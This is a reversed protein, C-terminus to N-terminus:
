PLSGFAFSAGIGLSIGLEPHYVFASELVIRRYHWGVGFSPQFPPGSVGARVIFGKWFAYSVGVRGVFPSRLEKDIQIYLMLSRFPQYSSGLSFLTPLYLRQEDKQVYSLVPNAIRFAIEWNKIPAFQAGIEMTFVGMNGQDGSVSLSCYDVRVGLRVWSALQRDVNLSLMWENYRGVGRYNFLIAGNIYRNPFSFGVLIRSLGGVLFRSEYDLYLTPRSLTNLKAPNNIGEMSTAVGGMAMSSAQPLEFLSRDLAYIQISIFQVWAFFFIYLVRGQM